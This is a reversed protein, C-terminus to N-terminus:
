KLKTATVEFVFKHTSSLDDVSTMLVPKSLTLVTQGNNKVSRIVPQGAPPNSEAALSSLELRWDLSLTGDRERLRSDMNLGVDVYQWQNASTMVPLRSGVRLQGWDEVGQSINYNRSNVIKTGDMEKVTLDLKYFSAGSKEARASDASAKKDNDQALMVGTLALAMLVVFVGCRRIM